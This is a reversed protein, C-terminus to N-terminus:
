TDGKYIYWTCKHGKLRDGDGLIKSNLSRKGVEFFWFQTKM